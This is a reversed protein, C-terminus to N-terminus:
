HRLGSPLIYIGNLHESATLLFRITVSYSVSVPKGDITGPKWVPMNEIARICENDMETRVKRMVQIDRKEGDTGIIFKIVVRGETKDSVAVEPYLINTRLYENFAEESGPFEPMKECYMYVPGRDQLSTNDIIFNDRGAAGQNLITDSTAIGKDFSNSQLKNNGSNKCSVAILVLFLTCAIKNFFDRSNM